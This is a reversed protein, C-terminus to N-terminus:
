QMAAIRPAVIRGIAERGDRNIDMGCAVLFGREADVRVFLDPSCDVADAGLNPIPQSSSGCQSSKRQDFAARRDYITVQVWTDGDYSCGMPGDPTGPKAATISIGTAQSMEQPTAISCPDSATPQKASATPSGSVTQNGKSSCAPTILIACAMVLVFWGKTLEIRRGTAAM